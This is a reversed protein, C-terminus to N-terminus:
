RSRSSVSACTRSAPMWTQQPPITPMPSPASSRTAAHMVASAESGACGSLTGILMSTRTSPVGSSSALIREIREIEHAGDRHRADSM